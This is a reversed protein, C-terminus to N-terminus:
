ASAAGTKLGTAIRGIVSDTGKVRVNLNNDTRYKVGNIHGLTLQLQPDLYWEKKKDMHFKRGYEASAQWANTHYGGKTVYRFQDSIATFDNHMHTGKVILDLYGGNEYKRTGYFSLSGLWNDASGGYNFSNGTYINGTFNSKWGYLSLPTTNSGSFLAYDVSGSNNQEQLAPVYISRSVTKTYGDAATLIVTYTYNKATSVPVATMKWGVQKLQGSEMTGIIQIEDSDATLELGEPLELKVSVEEATIDSINQIYATVDIPDPVYKGDVADIASDSYVSLALPLSLEESFESLGYYTVYERTEGPAIDQENWIVSVASDGNSLSPTITYDWEFARIRTWSVFQVKDPKIGTKGYFRGQAIVTPDKLDDFAQWLQPINNGKFETETTISGYQPVRFPAADNRGLMTDIMIRVGAKHVEETNNTLIYKVEVTDDRGTAPNKVISLKQEANM